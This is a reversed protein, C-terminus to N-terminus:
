SIAHYCSLAFLLILLYVFVSPCFYLGFVNRIGGFILGDLDPVVRGARRVQRIVLTGDKSPTTAQESESDEVLMTKASETEGNSVRRRFGHSYRTDWSCVLTLDVTISFFGRQMPIFCCSVHVRCRENDSM